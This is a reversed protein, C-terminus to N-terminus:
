RSVSDAKPAVYTLKPPGAVLHVAEALVDLVEQLTRGDADNWAQPVEGTAGALALNAREFADLALGFRDDHRAWARELAGPASWRTAFASSPSVPRGCADRAAAGQCWGERVFEYALELLEEVLATGNHRGFKTASAEDSVGFDERGRRRLAV